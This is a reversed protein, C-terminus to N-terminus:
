VQVNVISQGFRFLFLTNFVFIWLLQCLPCSPNKGRENKFWKLWLKSIICHYIVVKFSEVSYCFWFSQLIFIKVGQYIDVWSDLFTKFIGNNIFIFTSLRMQVPFDAASAAKGVPPRVRHSCESSLLKEIFKTIFHVSPFLDHLCFYSLLCVRANPTLNSPHCFGASVFSRYLGWSCWVLM